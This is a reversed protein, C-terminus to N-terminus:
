GRGKSNVLNQALLETAASPLQIGSLKWGDGEFHISIAGATESAGLRILFEVPKIPSILKLTEFVNSTDIETLRQM